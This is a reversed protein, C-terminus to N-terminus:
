VGNQGQFSAEVEIGNECCFESFKRRIYHLYAKRPDLKKGRNSVMKIVAHIHPHDTDNHAVFM